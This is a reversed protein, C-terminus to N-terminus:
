APWCDIALVWDVFDLNVTKAQKERNEKSNRMFDGVSNHRSMLSSGSNASVKV